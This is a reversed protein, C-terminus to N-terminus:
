YVGVKFTEELSIVTSIKYFSFREPAGRLLGYKKSVLKIPLQRNGRLQGNVRCFFKAESGTLFTTHAM